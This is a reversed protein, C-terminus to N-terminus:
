STSRQALNWPLAFYKSNVSDVTEPRSQNHDDSRGTSAMTLEVHALSIVGREIRYPAARHHRQREVPECRALNRFRYAM